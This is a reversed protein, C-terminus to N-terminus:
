GRGRGHVLPLRGHGLPGRSPVPDPHPHRKGQGCVLVSQDSSAAVDKGDIVLTRVESM